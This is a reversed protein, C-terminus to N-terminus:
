PPLSEAGTRLTLYIMLAALVGVVGLIGGLALAGNGEVGSYYPPQFPSSMLRWLHQCAPMSAANNQEKTTTNPRPLRRKRIITDRCQYAKSRVPM